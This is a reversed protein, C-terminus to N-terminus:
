RVLEVSFEAPLAEFFYLHAACSCDSSGFGKMPIVGGLLALKEALEHETMGTSFVVGEAKMHRRIYDIHWRCKKGTKLHRSLRARLGGPGCASGCYAYFGERTKITGLSGVRINKVSSCKLFVIYAGGVAPIGSTNM